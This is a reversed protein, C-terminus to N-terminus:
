WGTPNFQLPKRKSSRDTYRKRSTGYRGSSRYSTTRKRWQQNSSDDEDPSNFHGSADRLAQTLAATWNADRKRRWGTPNFSPKLRKVQLEKDFGGDDEAEEGNKKEEGIKLIRLIMNETEKNAPGSFLRQFKDSFSKKFVDADSDVLLDGASTSDRNSNLTMSLAFPLYVVMLCCTQVLSIKM